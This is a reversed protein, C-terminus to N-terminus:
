RVDLMEAKVALQGFSPSWGFDGSMILQCDCTGDAPVIDASCNTKPRAM